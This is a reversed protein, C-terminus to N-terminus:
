DEDAETDVAIGEIETVEPKDWYEVGEVV